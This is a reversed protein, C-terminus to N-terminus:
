QKVFMASVTIATCDVTTLHNLNNPLLSFKPEFEGVQTRSSIYHPHVISLSILCVQSMCMNAFKYWEATAPMNLYQLKSVIPSKSFMETTIQCLCHEDLGKKGISLVKINRLMFYNFVFRSSVEHATTFELAQFMNLLEIRETKNCFASDVQMVDKVKCWECLVEIAIVQPLGLLFKVM